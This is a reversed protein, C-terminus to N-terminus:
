KVLTPSAGYKKAEDATPFPPNKEDYEKRPAFDKIEVKGGQLPKGLLRRAENEWGKEEKVKGVDAAKPDGLVIPLGPAISVNGGLTPDEEADVIKKVPFPSKRGAILAAADSAPDGHLLGNGVFNNDKIVVKTQVKEINMIAGGFNAYFLCNTIQIEHAAYKGALELAAPNSTDPDPNFAFNVLFSCHDVIMKGPIHKSRASDLKVPIVCNFFISNVIRVEAKDDAAHILTEFARHASNMFVCNEIALENCTLNNFRVLVFTCSDGKLLSNSKQDYKNGPAAEFLVGDVIFSRLKDKPACELMVAARPTGCVFKTPAGFPDRKSFDESWGGQIKFSGKPNNFAPLAYTGGYTGGAIKVVVSKEAGGALAEAAWNFAKGVNEKTYKGNAKAALEKGKEENGGVFFVTEEGRASRPLLLAASVAALFLFNRM